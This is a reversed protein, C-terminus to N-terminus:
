RTLHVTRAGQMSVTGDGHVGSVHFDFTVPVGPDATCESANCTCAHALECLELRGCDVPVAHGDSPDPISCTDGESFGTNPLCGFGESPTQPVPRQLACWDVWASGLPITVRVRDAEVIAEIVPYPLGEIPLSPQTTFRMGPPYGVLPDTAREPIPGDGFVVVGTRHGTAPTPNLAIRVHDSGSPFMFAEIYGDWVVAGDPDGGDLSSCSAISLALSVIVVRPASRMFVEAARM